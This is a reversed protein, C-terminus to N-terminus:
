AIFGVITTGLAKLIVIVNPIIDADSALSGYSAWCALGSFTYKILKM